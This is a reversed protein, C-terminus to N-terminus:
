QNIQAKGERIGGGCTRNASKKHQFVLKNIINKNKRVAFLFMDFLFFFFFVVINLKFESTHDFSQAIFRSCFTWSRSNRAILPIEKSKSMPPKVTNM